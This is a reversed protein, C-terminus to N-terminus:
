RIIMRKSSSPSFPFSVTLFFFYDIPSHGLLVRVKPANNKKQRPAPPPLTYHSAHLPSQQHDLPQSQTSGTCPVCTEDKTLSSLDWMSCSFIGHVVVLVRGLWIFLSKKFLSAHSYSVGFEHQQNGRPPSLPALILIPAPPKLSTHNILTLLQYEPISPWAMIGKRYKKNFIIFYPSHSHM